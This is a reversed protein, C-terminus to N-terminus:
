MGGILNTRLIIRCDPRTTGPATNNVYISMFNTNNTSQIFEQTAVEGVGSVLVALQHKGLAPSFASKAGYECSLLRAKLRRNPLDALMISEGDLLVIARISDSRTSSLWIQLTGNFAPMQDEVSASAPQALWQSRLHPLGLIVLAAGAVLFCLIYVRPAKM